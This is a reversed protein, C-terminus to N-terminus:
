DQKTTKVVQGAVVFGQGLTILDVTEPLGSVWIKNADTRIIDVIYVVVRNEDNIGKAQLRGQNDLSLISASVSHGSIEEISISLSATMGVIRRHASNDILIEIRYSRTQADATTSIFTLAGTLNDGNSLSATVQQGLSLSEVQQQPVMATIKLQNDDVFSILEHGREVYDGIEVFRRDLVGSFPAKISTNAIDYNVKELTAKAAEVNAQALSLSSESELKKTFLNKTAALEQQQYKLNATAQARDALLTQLSIKVLTTGAEVRHGLAIPLATIKGEVETKLSILRYPEIQGQVKIKKAVQQAYSESVVVSMLSEDGDTKHVENIGDPESSGTLMWIIIAILLGIASVVSKSM